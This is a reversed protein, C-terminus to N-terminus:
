SSSILIQKYLNPDIAKQGYRAMLGTPNFKPIKMRVEVKRPVLVAPGEGDGVQISGEDSPPLVELVEESTTVVEIADDLKSKQMPVYPAFVFGDDHFKPKNARMKKAAEVTVGMEQATEKLVEDCIKGPLSKLRRKLVKKRIRRNM